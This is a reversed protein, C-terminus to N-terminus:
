AIWRVGYDKESENAMQGLRWAMYSFTREAGSNNEIVWRGNVRYVCIKDPTAPTDSFWEPSSASFNGALDRITEPVDYFLAVIGDFAMDQIFVM